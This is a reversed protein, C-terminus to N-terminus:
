IGKATMCHLTCHISDYAEHIQFICLLAINRQTYYAWEIYVWIKSLFPYLVDALLVVSSIHIIRVSVFFIPMKLILWLYLTTREVTSSTKTHLSITYLALVKYQHRRFHLIQYLDSSSRWLCTIASKLKWITCLFLRM